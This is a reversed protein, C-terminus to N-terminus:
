DVCLKEILEELTENKWNYRIMKLQKQNDFFDEYRQVIRKHRGIVLGLYEPPKHEKKELSVSSENIGTPCCYIIQQPYTWAEMLRQPTTLLKQNMVNSYIFESIWPARDIIYLKKSWSLFELDSILNEIEQKSVPRGSHRYEAELSKTLQKGLTSKGSGDPGELVIISM